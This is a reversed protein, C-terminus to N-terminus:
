TTINPCNLKLDRAPQGAIDDIQIFGGNRMLTRGLQGVEIVHPDVSLPTLLHSVGKVDFAIM